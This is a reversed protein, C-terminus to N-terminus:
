SNKLSYESIETEPVKEVLLTLVMAKLKKYKEETLKVKEGNKYIGEEGITKYGGLSYFVKWYNFENVDLELEVKTNNKDDTRIKMTKQSKQKVLKFEEATLERLVFKYEGIEVEEYEKDEDVFCAMIKDM